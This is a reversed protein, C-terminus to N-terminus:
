RDFREIKEEDNALLVIDAPRAAFLGNTIVGPIQNIATELAIPEDIQLNHIDLIINGNETIFDERYVPDGGMKLMERAVYSRAMPIVEVPLPFSGFPPNKKRADAICIFVDAVSAVIKEKTLAGGGGKILQLHQNVQDAGDVYIAVKDVSNLDFVPIQHTKLRETSVDSSSVTGAIRHKIKVLEDIFYNATSGTGIGVIMEDEVFDIAAKAVNHKLTEVSMERVKSTIEFGCTLM